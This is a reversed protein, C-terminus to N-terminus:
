HQKHFQSHWQEKKTKRILIRSDTTKEGYREEFPVFRKSPSKLPTNEVSKDRRTKSDKRKHSKERKTPETLAVEYGDKHLRSALEKTIKGYGTSIGSFEGVLLIKM